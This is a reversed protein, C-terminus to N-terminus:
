GPPGKAIEAQLKALAAADDDAQKKTAAAKAMLAALDADQKDKLDKAQKDKLEQLRAEQRGLKARTREVIKEQEAVTPTRTSTDRLFFRDVFGAPLPGQSAPPNHEMGSLQGYVLKVAANCAEVFTARPGLDFQDLAREAAGIENLLATADRTAQAAEHGLDQVAKIPSAGLKGPWVTMTTLQPGLIYKRVESPSKNEFVDRYFAIGADSKDAALAVKVEDLIRNLEDDAFIEKARLALLARALKSRTARHGDLDTLLQAIPPALPQTLVCARLYVYLHDLFAEIDEFPEDAPLTRPAVAM